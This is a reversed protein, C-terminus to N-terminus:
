TRQCLDKKFTIYGGTVPEQIFGLKTLIQISRDNNKRVYALATEINLNFLKILFYQIMSTGYGKSRIGKLVWFAIQSSRSLPDIQYSFVGVNESHRNTVLFKHQHYLSSALYSLCDKHTYIAEIELDERSKRDLNELLWDVDRHTLKRHNLLIPNQRDGEM